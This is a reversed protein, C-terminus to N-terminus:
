QKPPTCPTTVLHFALSSVQVVCGDPDIGPIGGDIISTNIGNFTANTLTGEIETDCLTTFRITGATALYSADISFNNMLDLGVLAGVFATSGLAVTALDIDTDLPISTDFGFLLGNIGGLSITPTLGLTFIGLPIFQDLGLPLTFPPVVNDPCDCTSSKCVEGGKCPSACDGCNAEDESVDLCAGDCFAQGATCLPADPGVTADPEAVPPVRLNDGYSCAAACLVVLPLSWRM